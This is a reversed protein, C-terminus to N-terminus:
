RAGEGSLWRWLPLLRIRGRKGYWEVEDESDTDATLVLLRDCSLDAGAQLLARIERQRTNARTTDWCVQILQTVQRGEKVVFDVERQQADELFIRISLPKTAARATSDTSPFM